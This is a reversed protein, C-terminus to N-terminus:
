RQSNAARTAKIGVQHTCVYVYVCMRICVCMCAYMHVHTCGKKVRVIYTRILLPRAASLRGAQSGLASGEREGGGGERGERQISAVGRWAVGGRRTRM